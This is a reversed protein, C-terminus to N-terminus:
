AEGTGYRKAIRQLLGPKQQEGGVGDFRNLRELNKAQWTGPQFRPGPPQVRRAAAEKAKIDDLAGRQKDYEARLGRPPEEDKIQEHVLRGNRLDFTGIVEKRDNLFLIEHDELRQLQEGTANPEAQLSVSSGHDYALTDSTNGSHSESRGKPLPGAEYSHSVGEDSTWGGSQNISESGGTQKWVERTGAIETSFKGAETANALRTSGVVGRRGIESVNEETVGDFVRVMEIGRGGCFDSIQRLRKNDKEGIVVLIAPRGWPRGSEVMPRIAEGFFQQLVEQNGADDTIRYRAVTVLDSEPPINYEVPESAEVSTKGRLASLQTSLEWLHQNVGAQRVPGSFVRRLKAADDDGITSDQGLLYKVAQHLEPISPSSVVGATNEKSLATIIQHSVDQIAARNEERPTSRALMISLDEGDLVRLPGEKSGASVHWDVVPYGKKAAELIFSDSDGGESSDLVLVKREKPNSSLKSGVAWLLVQGRFTPNALVIDLDGRSTVDSIRIERLEGAQGEITRGKSGSELRSTEKGRYPKGTELNRM